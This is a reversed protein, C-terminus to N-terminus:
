FFFLLHFQVLCLCKSNRDAPVVAMEQASSAPISHVPQSLFLDLADVGCTWRVSQVTIPVSFDPMSLLQVKANCLVQLVFYAANQNQKALACLEIAEKKYSKLHFTWASQNTQYPPWMLQKFLISSHTKQNTPMKQVWQVNRNIVMRACLTRFLIQACLAPHLLLMM